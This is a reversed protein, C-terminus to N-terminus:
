RGRKMVAKVKEFYRQTSRISYNNGGNWSRIAKEVNNKPNYKSQFLLFMEKSKKVSFRDSLTFRRKSKRSRLIRNCEAVMIPTIQMAGVSNGSRAKPNGKSEVMIIAHIVQSWDFNSVNSTEAIKSASVAQASCVTFFMVMTFLARKIKEM